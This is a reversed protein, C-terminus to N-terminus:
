QDAIDDRILRDAMAQDPGNGRSFTWIRFHLVDDLVESKMRSTQNFVGAHFTWGRRCDWVKASNWTWVVAHWGEM